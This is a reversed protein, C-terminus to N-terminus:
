SRIRRFGPLFAYVTMVAGVRDAHLLAHIQARVQAHRNTCTQAYRCLKTQMPTDAYHPEAYVQRHLGAHRCLSTQASRCTQMLINAYTIKCLCTQMHVAQYFKVLDTSLTSAHLASDAKLEELIKITYLLCCAHLQCADLIQICVWPVVHLLKSSSPIDM